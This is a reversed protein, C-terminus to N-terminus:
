AKKTLIAFDAMREEFIKEFENGPHKEKLKILQSLLFNCRNEYFFKDLALWESANTIRPFFKIIFTFYCFNGIPEM